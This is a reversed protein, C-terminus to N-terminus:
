EPAVESVQPCSRCSCRSTRTSPPTPWIASGKMENPSSGLVYICLHLSSCLIPIVYFTFLLLLINSFTYFFFFILNIVTMQKITAFVWYIVCKWTLIYPVVALLVATTLYRAAAQLGSARHVQVVLTVSPSAAGGGPQVATRVPRHKYRICVDLLGTSFSVSLCLTEFVPYTQWTINYNQSHTKNKGSPRPQLETLRDTRPILPLSFIQPEDPLQWQVTVM